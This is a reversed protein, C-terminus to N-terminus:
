PNYHFRGGMVANKREQNEMNKLGKKGIWRWDVIEIYKNEPSVDLVAICNQSEIKIPNPTQKKVTAYYFPYDQPKCHMIRDCKYIANILVDKHNLGNDKIETHKKAMRNAVFKKLLVQRNDNMVKQWEPSQIRPLKISCSPRTIHKETLKNLNTVEGILEHYKDREEPVKVWGHVTKKHPGNKWEAIDGIKYNSHKDLTQKFEKIQSLRIKMDKTIRPREPLNFFNLANM